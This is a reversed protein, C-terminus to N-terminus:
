ENIEKYAVLKNSEYELVYGLGNNISYDFFSKSPDVMESMIARITGGHSMIVKDQNNLLLINKYENIVREKFDNFSEGNPPYNLLPDNIWSLYSPDNKLNQYSKGEWDGFHTERLDNCVIYDDEYIMELTKIARLMPSTFLQCNDPYVKKSIYKTIESIGKSSLDVDISGTYTKKENSLTKGHRFLYIKM